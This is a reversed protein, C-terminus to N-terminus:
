AIRPLLATEATDAHRPSQTQGFVQAPQYSAPAQQAVLQPTYSGGPGSQPAWSDAADAVVRAACVGAHLVAQRPEADGYRITVATDYVRGDPMTAATVVTITGQEAM